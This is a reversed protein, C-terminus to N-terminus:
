VPDHSGGLNADKEKLGNLLSSASFHLIIGAITFGFVIGFFALNDVNPTTSLLNMFVNQIFATIFCAIAMGNLTTAKLKVRENHVLHEAV